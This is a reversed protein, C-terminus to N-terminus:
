RQGQIIPHPEIVSPSDWDTDFLWGVLMLIAGIAIIILLGILLYKQLEDHFYEYSM